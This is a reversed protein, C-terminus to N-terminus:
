KLFIQNKKLNQLKLMVIIRLYMIYLNKVQLINKPYPVHGISGGGLNHGQM